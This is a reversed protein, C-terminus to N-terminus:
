SGTEVWATALWDALMVLWTGSASILASTCINCFFIPYNHVDGPASVVRGQGAKGGCGTLPMKM